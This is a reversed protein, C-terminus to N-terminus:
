ARSRKNETPNRKQLFEAKQRSIKLKRANDKNAQELM